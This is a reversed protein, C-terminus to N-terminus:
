KEWYSLCVAYRQDPDPYEVTMKASAMCRGLFKDKSEDANPFIRGDLIDAIREKFEKITKLMERYEEIESKM